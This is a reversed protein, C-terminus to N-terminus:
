LDHVNKVTAEACDEPAQRRLAEGKPPTPKRRDDEATFTHAESGCRACRWTLTQFLSGKRSQLRWRHPKVGSPSPRRLRRRRGM